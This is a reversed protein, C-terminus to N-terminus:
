LNQMAAGAIPLNGHRSRLSARQPYTCQCEIALPWSRALITRSVVLWSPCSNGPPDIGGTLRAKQKIRGRLTEIWIWDGDEIGFRSATEPHIEVLPDAEIERLYPIQRGESHFFVPSKTGTTLILPYDQALEPASLPSEPLEAYGPLPDYGLRELTSSYLEVKGSPTAFGSNEYKLYKPPVAIYGREKMQEFNVSLPQLQFNIIEELSETGWPLKLRRALEIMIEQDQRAEGVQTIKQQVLAVNEARLPYGRVSNVELWTAAPLVIDALEATPTMYLDTVILLDLNLLAQHVEQPNAYTLLANNGFILFAKVPYPEGTRMARFVTPAHASPVLAERSSLLKFQAAGLRRDHIDTPLRDYGTPFHRLIHMGFINGGPIDIDGTLATLVALARLNQLCNPTQELAVGWELCAPKTTAFMRAAQIIKEEPIWTTQEAWKPTCREVRERLQDFGVTWSSIFRPNYLNEDIIIKIMALALAADTGPRIQLWLDSIAATESLRPDVAIIKSGAKWSQLFRFGMEGDPSTHVPNHGWVLICAPQTTGYYDCIILDGFSLKSATVRPLFCQAQGPACWNPTGLANAFRITFPFHHRGTGQGIAIAEVGYKGKIQELQAAIVNLAEDWSIKQWKGGGRAGTRILPYQIRAPNYVHQLSALGKACLAGKSLPSDPDGEIRTIRGDQTHVLVGCGGHCMGCSSRYVKETQKAMTEM